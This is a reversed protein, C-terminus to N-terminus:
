LRFQRYGRIALWKIPASKAEPLSDLDRGIIRRRLLPGFFNQIRTDFVGTVGIFRGVSGISKQNERFPVFKGAQIQISQVLLQLIGDHNIAAIEIIGVGHGRM